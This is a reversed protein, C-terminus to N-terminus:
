VVSGFSLDVSGSPPQLGAILCGQAVPGSPFLRYLYKMGGKQHFKEDLADVLERRKGFEHKSFYEQLGMIAEWHDDSLELQHDNALQSAIQTNWNHPANSFDQNRYHTM